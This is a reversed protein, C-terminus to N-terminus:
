HPGRACLQTVIEDLGSRDQAALAAPSEARLYRPNRRSLTEDIFFASHSVAADQLAAHPLTGSHYQCVCRFAPEAHFVEELRWEYELLNAYDQRPGFEWSVDGTSWLGKYGDALAQHISQRLLEFMQGMHFSGDDRLTQDSILLLSGRATERAVDAGVVTLYSRMRAVMAPSNFYLCRYGEDLSAKTASAVKSLGYSPAGAFIFCRHRGLGNRPAVSALIAPVLEGHLSQKDLKVKAGVREALVASEHDVWISMAVVVCSLDRALREIKEPQFGIPAPMQLDLLLVDPRLAQLQAITEAYNSAEGVISIGSHADLLRRVATRIAPFDDAILLRLNVTLGTCRQYRM